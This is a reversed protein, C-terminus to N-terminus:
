KRRSARPVRGYSAHLNAFTRPTAPFQPSGITILEIISVPNGRMRWEGVTMVEMKDVVM